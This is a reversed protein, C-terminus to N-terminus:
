DFSASRTKLLSSPPGDDGIDVFKPENWAFVASFADFTPRTRLMVVLVTEVRLDAPVLLRGVSM